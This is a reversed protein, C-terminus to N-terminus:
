CLIQLMPYLKSITHKVLPASNDPRSVIREQEVGSELIWVCLEHRVIQEAIVQEFESVAVQLAREPLPLAVGLKLNDGDTRVARNDHLM